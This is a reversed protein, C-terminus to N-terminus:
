VSRRRSYFRYAFYILLGVAAAIAAARAEKRASTLLWGALILSLAAIVNGGRLRFAASPADSRHRFVPLSLCTAGYTVLRAIASITLAAVFSSKLTLVLMLATTILIAVHPTSFRRHVKAILSPLQQQEAMAFPVRSGSLVLVNLNGTISIIAGASIIAGGAAGMFRMGADALPRQSQALEPLTGVCVIQILIYLVAVVAIAILLAHPLNRKPDRVEGAPIAAMEFGTFAYILLLVSQSFAGTTPRPGLVFAQHNLFFLGVAIFIILPILKGITFLNSVIAAQRVGFVNIATLTAVVLIIISARWVPSAATPVFYGLYAVLLNCNAAFATVRALWILWGIEFAVTPGFAERAYLYPGGTTEFRSGVEAFCLIFLTVVIACVVFAILSYSGILSFVKSPLGFIGAGIIGNIAIAVLDWRRIGRILGAEATEALVKAM